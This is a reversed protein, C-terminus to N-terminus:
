RAGELTLDGLVQGDQQRSDGLSVALGKGELANKLDTDSGFRPYTM